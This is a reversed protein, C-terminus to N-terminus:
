IWKLSIAYFIFLVFGFNELTFKLPLLVLQVYATVLASVMQEPTSYM